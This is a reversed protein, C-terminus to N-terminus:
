NNTQSTPIITAGHENYDSTIINLNHETHGEESVINMNVANSADGLAPNAASMIRNTRIINQQIM